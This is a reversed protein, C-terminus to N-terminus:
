TGLSCNCGRNMSLLALTEASYGHVGGVALHLKQNVTANGALLEVAAASEYDGVRRPM